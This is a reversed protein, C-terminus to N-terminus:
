FTTQFNLYLSNLKESWDQDTRKYVNM